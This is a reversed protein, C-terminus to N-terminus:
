LALPRAGQRLDRQFDGLVQAVEASFDTAQPRTMKVWWVSLALLVSDSAWPNKAGMEPRIEEAIPLELVATAMM